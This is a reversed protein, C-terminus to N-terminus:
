SAVWCWDGVPEWRPSLARRSGEETRPLIATFVIAVRFIARAAYVGGYRRISVKPQRSSGSGLRKPM